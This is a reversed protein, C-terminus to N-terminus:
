QCKALAQDPSVNAEIEARDIGKVKMATQKIEDYIANVRKPYDARVEIITIGSTNCHRNLTFYKNKEFHTKLSQFSVDTLSNTKLVIKRSYNSITPQGNVLVPFSFFVCLTCVIAFASYKKRM